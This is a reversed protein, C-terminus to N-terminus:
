MTKRRKENVSQAHNQHSYVPISASKRRTQLIQLIIHALPRSPTVAAPLMEWDLSGNSTLPLERYTVGWEWLSGHGPTGRLGIVQHRWAACVQILLLKEQIRWDDCEGVVQYVLALRQALKFMCHSMSFQVSSGKAAPTAHM